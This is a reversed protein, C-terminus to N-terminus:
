GNGHGKFPSGCSQPHISENITVRPSTRGQFTVSKSYLGVCLLRVLIFRLLNLSSCIMAIKF